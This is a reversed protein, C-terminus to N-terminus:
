RNTKKVLGRVQLFEEDIKGVDDKLQAIELKQSRAHYLNQFTKTM